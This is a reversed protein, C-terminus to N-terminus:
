SRAATSGIGDPTAVGEATAESEGPEDDTRRHDMPDVRKDRKKQKKLRSDRLQGTKELIPYAVSTLHSNIRKLDRLVDLHVETLESRHGGEQLFDLQNKMLQRELRRFVAKRALLQRAMAPDGSMFVGFALNFSEFVPAHMRDILDQDAPPLAPHDKIKKRVIYDLLHVSIIDGVHELNTTFNLINSCGESDEEGLPERSLLTLYRRIQGYFDDIIDDVMATRKALDQDNKKIAVSSDRFMRELVEGMRLTERSANALAVAPTDLASKDLYIPKIESEDNPRAAILLKTLRAMLGVLPLFVIALCINFVTHFNAIQRVGSEGLLPMLSVVGALFPLTVVVGILRFLFNGLPPRRAEPASALTAVLPPLAGGINAGLVLAFGVLLPVVGATVLSIILLVTALSSHSIWAIVAAFIVALIPDGELSALAAQALPAERLSASAAVILKLALLMLGLGVVLRGVDRKTGGSANLFLVVGITLLIPSLLSFDFSLAQAVLTTGVDAGLVVALAPATAMLGQGAFSAALLSTASSSQLLVTVGLGAFFAKLRNSLSWGLFRRVEGGWARTVGTRVM